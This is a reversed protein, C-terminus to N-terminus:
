REQADSVVTLLPLTMVLLTITSIDHAM